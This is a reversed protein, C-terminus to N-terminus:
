VVSKRDLREYLLARLGHKLASDAVGQWDSELLQTCDRERVQGSLGGLCELLRQDSESAEVEPQHVPDDMRYIPKDQSKHRM